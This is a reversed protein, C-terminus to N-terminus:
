FPIDDDDQSHAPAKSKKEGGALAYAARAAEEIQGRLFAESFWFYSAYGKSGDSKQYERAPPSIYTDQGKRLLRIDNLDLAKFKATFTALLNGKDIVRFNAVEFAKKENGMPDTM